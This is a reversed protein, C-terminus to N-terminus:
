EVELRAMIKKKLGLIADATCEDAIENRHSEDADSEVGGCSGYAELTGLRATVACSEMHWHNGFSAHRKYDEEIYFRDVNSLSGHKRILDRMDKKDVHAWRKMDGPPLHNGGPNWYRFEGRGAEGRAERDIAYPGPKQSFEGLHSLDADYEDIAWKIEIQIDLKLHRKLAEATM